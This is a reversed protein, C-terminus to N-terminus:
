TLSPALSPWWRTNWISPNPEAKSATQRTYVFNTIDRLSLVDWREAKSISKRVYKRWRDGKFICSQSRRSVFSECTHMDLTPIKKPDSNSLIASIDHVLFSGGFDQPGRFWPIWAFSTWFYVERRTGWICLYACLVASALQFKWWDVGGVMVWILILVGTRGPENEPHLM